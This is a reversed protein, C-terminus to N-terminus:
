VHATVLSPGLRGASTPSRCFATPSPAPRGRSGLRSRSLAWSWRRRPPVCLAPPDPRFPLTCPASLACAEKAAYFYIKKGTLVHMTSFLSVQADLDLDPCPWTSLHPLPDRVREMIFRAADQYAVVMASNYAPPLDPTSITM